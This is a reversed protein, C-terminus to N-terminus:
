RMKHRQRYESPLMGTQERFTRSFYKEDEYGTQKAIWVIPKATQELYERAKDIRVKRLYENFSFGVIEKFCQSFYSRSLNVRKAVDIAFLPCDLEDHVIKVATLISGNVEPNLQLSGSLASAMDRFHRLWNEADRWSTFTDPLKVDDTQVAKFLRNWEITFSYILQMLKSVPLRLEKIRFCLQEFTQDDHVWKYAHLMVKVSDTDQELPEPHEMLLDSVSREILCSERGDCDYFLASSRYARLHQYLDSPFVGATHRLKILQWRANNIGEPLPPLEELDSDKEFDEGHSDKLWMLISGEGEARWGLSMFNSLLSSTLPEDQLSLLAYSTDGSCTEVARYDRSDKHKQREEAIRSHIRTFVEKFHEKELEVKAIYDIAGLRLAEQIYEFDQHLTLVAIATNPYEKRVIRILEIGSMVPMALDTMLLDVRNEQLFQLAREGNAAEGVVKMGFSEWPMYSILGKRVLKDDDVILVHIM